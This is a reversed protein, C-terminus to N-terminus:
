ATTVRGNTRVTTVNFEEVESDGSADGDADLETTSVRNFGSREPDELLRSLDFSDRNSSNHMMRM